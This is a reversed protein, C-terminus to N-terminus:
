MRFAALTIKALGKLRAPGNPASQSTETQVIATRHTYTAPGVTSIMTAGAQPTSVLEV